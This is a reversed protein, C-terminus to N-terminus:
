RERHFPNWLAATWSASLVSNGLSNREMPNKRVGWGLAFVSGNCQWGLRIAEGYGVLKRDALLGGRAGLEWRGAVNWDVGASALLGRDIRLEGYRYGYLVNM